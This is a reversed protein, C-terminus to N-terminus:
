RYGYPTIEAYALQKTEFFREMVQLLHYRCYPLKASLEKMPLPEKMLSQWLEKACEQLDPYQWQLSAHVRKVPQEESLNLKKELALMEDKLHVANMTFENINPIDLTSEVVPPETTRTFGFFTKPTVLFFQLLAEMGHLHEFRASIPSGNAFAFEGVMENAPGVINMIGHQQSLSITQFITPLDFFDLSGSLERVNSRFHLQATTKYLRHALLITLYHGFAPVTTILHQFAEQDFRLLAASEPVRVAATRPTNMLLGIEGFLDGKALYTIPIPNQGDQNVMIIEVTGDNVVYFSDSVEGQAYVVSDAGYQVLQGEKIIKEFEKPNIKKCFAFFDDPAGPSSTLPMPVAEQSEIKELPPPNM